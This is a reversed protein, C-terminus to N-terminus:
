LRPRARLFRGRAFRYSYKVYNAVNMTLMIPGLVFGIMGWWTGVLTCGQFELFTTNMCRFCVAGYFTRQRRGFFYSINQQFSAVQVRKAKGCVKCTEFPLYRRLWPDDGGSDGIHGDRLQVRADHPM